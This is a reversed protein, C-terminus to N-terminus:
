ARMRGNRTPGNHRAGDGFKRAHKVAPCERGHECYWGHRDLFVLHVRTNGQNSEDVRYLQEVSTGPGCKRIPDLERVVFTPAPPAVPTKKPKPRSTRRKVKTKGAQKGRNLAKVKTVAGRKKVKDM